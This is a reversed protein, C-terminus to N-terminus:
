GDSHEGEGVEGATQLRRRLEALLPDSSLFCVCRKHLEQDMRNRKLHYLLVGVRAFVGRIFEKCHVPEHLKEESLQVQALLKLPADALMVERVWDELEAISEDTGRSMQNLAVRVGHGVLDIAAQYIDRSRRIEQIASHISDDIIVGVGQEWYPWSAIQHAWAKVQELQQEYLDRPMLEDKLLELEERLEAIRARSEEEKVELAVGQSLEALQARVFAAGGLEHGEVSPDHHLLNVCCDITWDYLSRKVEAPLDVFDLSWWWSQAFDHVQAMLPDSLARQGQASGKLEELALLLEQPDVAASKGVTSCWRELLHPESQLAAPHEPCYLEKLCSALEELSEGDLEFHAGLEAVSKPLDMMYFKPWIGSKFAQSAGPFGNLTTQIWASWFCRDPGRNFGRDEKLLRHSHNLIFGLREGAIISRTFQPDRTLIDHISSRFLDNQQASKSSRRQNMWSWFRGSDSMELLLRDSLQKYNLQDDASVEDSLFESLAARENRESYHDILAEVFARKLSHKGSLLCRLAWRVSSHQQMDLGLNLADPDPKIVILLLDCEHTNHEFVRSAKHILERRGNTADAGPFDILDLSSLFRRPGYKSSILASESGIIGIRSQQALSKLSRQGPASPVGPQVEYAGAASTPKLFLEEADSPHATAELGLVKRELGEGTAVLSVQMVQPEGGGNPEFTKLLMHQAEVDYLMEFTERDTWRVACATTEQDRTPMDKILSGTGEGLLAKNMTTKGTSMRGMLGCTVPTLARDQVRRLSSLIQELRPIWQKEDLLAKLRASGEDQASDLEQYSAKLSKLRGKLERELLQIDEYAAQPRLHTHKHTVSNM